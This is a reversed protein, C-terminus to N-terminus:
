WPLHAELHEAVRMANLQHREMRVRTDKMREPALLLRLPSPVAGIANQNFKVKTYIEENSDHDGESCMATGV